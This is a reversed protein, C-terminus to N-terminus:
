KSNVLRSGLRRESLLSCYLFTILFKRIKAAAMISAAMNATEAEACVVRGAVPVVGALGAAVVGGAVLL